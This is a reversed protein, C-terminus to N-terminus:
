NVAAATAAPMTAGEGPQFSFDVFDEPEIGPELADITVLIELLRAIEDRDLRAYTDETEDGFVLQRERMVERTWLMFDETMSPNREAIMAHAPAPDSAFYDRWGRWTAELFARIKDPHEQIFTENAYVVRFPDFGSDAVLFVRVNIGKQALYYPESTVYCQQADLQGAQFQATSWNHPVLDFDIGFHHKLWPIYPAAIAGMYRKGDLDEFGQIPSDEPVMVSVPSHEMFVGVTKIPLGKQNAQAMMDLRVIGLNAKEGRGVINFFPTNPGAELIEVDLGAEEYFGKALAQYFGGQEPQAYWDMQLRIKFLGGGAEEDAGSESGCGTVLLAMGLAVAPLAFWM